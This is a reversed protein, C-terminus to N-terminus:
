GSCAQSVFGLDRPCLTIPDPLSALTIFRFIVNPPISRDARHQRDDPAMRSAPGNAPRAAQRSFRRIDRCSAL